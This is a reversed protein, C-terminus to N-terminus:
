LVRATLRFTLNPGITKKKYKTTYHWKIKNVHIEENEKSNKTRQSPIFIYCGSPVSLSLIRWTYCNQVILDKEMQKVYYFATICSTHLSLHLLFHFFSTLKSQTSYKRGMHFSRMNCAKNWYFFFTTKNTNQIKGLKLPFM